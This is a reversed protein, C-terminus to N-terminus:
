RETFLQRWEDVRGASDANSMRRAIRGFADSIIRRSLSESPGLAEDVHVSQGTSDRIPQLVRQAGKQFYYRLMEKHSFPGQYGRFVDVGLAEAHYGAVRQQPPLLAIIAKALKITPVLKKGVEDNRRTLAATFERPRIPAWASGGPQSIKLHGRCSIAPLLQIDVDSFSITVALDGEHVPTAPFRDRLRTAFYARAASPTGDALECSDLMVLADVDSFGDIYTNKSVSGGFMINVSGILERALAAEIEQLHVGIADLDRDNFNVLLSALLENCSSVYDPDASRDQAEQLQRKVSELDGTGFYSGGSGGM